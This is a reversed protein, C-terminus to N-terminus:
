EWAYWPMVETTRMQVPGWMQERPLCTSVMESLSKPITRHMSVSSVEEGRMLDNRSGTYSEALFICEGSNLWKILPQRQDHSQVIGTAPRKPWAWRVGSQSHLQPHRCDFLQRCIQQWFHLSYRLDNCQTSLRCSVSQRARCPLAPQNAPAPATERKRRESQWNAPAAVTQRSTKTMTGAAASNITQRVGIDNGIHSLTAAQNQSAIRHWKDNHWQRRIVDPVCTTTSHGILWSFPSGFLGM